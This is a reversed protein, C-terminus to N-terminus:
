SIRQIFILTYYAPINKGTGSEGTTTTVLPLTDINSSFETLVVPKQTGIGSLYVIHNHEVVVADDSGGTAGSTAGGRVFKDVLNITGNNGDCKYWGPITVNDEWTGSYIAIFGIPLATIAATAETNQQILLSNEQPLSADKDKKFAIGDTTQLDTHGSLFRYKIKNIIVQRPSINPNGKDHAIWVCECVQILGRNAEYSWLNIALPLLQERTRLNDATKGLETEDKIFAYTDKYIKAGLQDISAQDKSETSIQTGAVIAGLLMVWNIADVHKKPKVNWCHFLQGKLNDGINYDTDTSIGIADIFMKYGTDGVDTRFDIRSVGSVTNNLYPLDNGELIGNIYCDFTNATDDLVLKIHDFINVVLFADKISIYGGALYDLNSGSFRLKIIDTTEEEILLYGVTNIAISDKTIYFEIVTNLGQTFTRRVWAITAADDDAFQLVKRHGNLSAIITSSTSGSGMDSWGSPASGVADDKFNYTAKHHFLIVGSDVDADNFTLAGTPSLYWHKYHKDAWDNLITRFTKDGKFTNDTNGETADITGETIYSCEAILTKIHNSDLDGNYDGSPRFEDLDNRARSDCWIKRTSTLEYDIITGEFIIQDAVSSGNSTFYDYIIITDNKHPIWTGKGMFEARHYDRIPCEIFSSPHIIDSSINTYEFMDGDNNMFFTDTIAIINADSLDSCDQLQILTSKIPKIKYVIKNVIGFAKEEENPTVGSCNRELMLAINYEGKKTLTDTSIKYTYLYYKSDSTDQLVFYLTDLSDYAIARQNQPPLETNAGCDEMEVITAGGVGDITWRWLKVNEDSWKWLFYAYNGAVTIYSVEYSRAGITGMNKDNVLVQYNLLTVRKYIHIIADANNKVFITYINSDAGFLDIMFDGFAGPNDMSDDALNHERVSGTTTSWYIKNNNHDPYCIKFNYALTLLTTWSSGKDISKKIMNDKGIYLNGNYIGRGEIILHTDNPKVSSTIGLDKYRYLKMDPDEELITPFFLM